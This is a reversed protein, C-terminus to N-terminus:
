LYVWKVDADCFGPLFSFSRLVCEERCLCCSVVDSELVYVDSTGRGRRRSKHRGSPARPQQQPSAEPVRAHCCSAVLSAGLLHQVPPVKTALRAECAGQARGPRCHRPVLRDFALVLAPAARVLAHAALVLTTLPGSRERAPTASLLNLVRPVPEGRDGAGASAREKEEECGGGGRLRGCAEGKRGVGGSEKGVRGEM